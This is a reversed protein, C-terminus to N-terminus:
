VFIWSELDHGILFSAVCVMLLMVNMPNAVQGRAVAWMNPPPDAAMENPGYEALRCTAEAADLGREPDVFLQEAVDETPRAHWAPIDSDADGVPSGFDHM